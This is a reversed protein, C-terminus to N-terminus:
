TYERSLHFLPHNWHSATNLPEVGLIEWEPQVFKLLTILNGFEGAYYLIHDLGEEAFLTEIEVQNLITFYAAIWYPRKLNDPFAISTSQQKLQDAQYSKQGVFGESVNKSWLQVLPRKPNSFGFNHLTEHGQSRSRDKNAHPYATKLAIKHPHITFEKAFKRRGIPDTVISWKMYDNAPEKGRGNRISFLRYYIKNVKAYYQM